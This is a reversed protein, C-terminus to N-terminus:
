IHLFGAFATAVAPWTGAVVAVAVVALLYVPSADHLGAAQAVAAVVTVLAVAAVIVAVDRAILRRDISRIPDM